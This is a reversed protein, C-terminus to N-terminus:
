RIIVAQKTSPQDQPFNQEITGYSEDDYVKTLEIWPEFLEHDGTESYVTVDDPVGEILKKLQRVNM